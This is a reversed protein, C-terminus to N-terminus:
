QRAQLVQRRIKDCESQLMSIKRKLHLNQAALREAEREKDMKRQKRRMRSKKCAENNRIRRRDIKDLEHLIPMLSNTDTVEQLGCQNFNITSLTPCTTPQPLTPNHTITHPLTPNHTIPYSPPEWNQQYMQHDPPSMALITNTSQDYQPTHCSGPSGQYNEFPPDPSTSYNSSLPSWQQQMTVYSNGGVPFGADNDHIREVKYTGTIAVPESQRRNSSTIKVDSIDNIDHQSIVDIVTGISYQRTMPPPRSLVDPVDSYPFGDDPFEDKVGPPFHFNQELTVSSPSVISQFSDISETRNRHHQFSEGGHMIANVTDCSENVQQFDKNQQDDDKYSIDNVLLSFCNVM